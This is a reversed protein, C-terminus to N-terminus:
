YVQSFTFSIAGIKGLGLLSNEHYWFSKGELTFNTSWEYSLISQSLRLRERWTTKMGILIYEVRSLSVILLKWDLFFNTKLKCSVLLFSWVLILTRNQSFVLIFQVPVSEETDHLCICFFLHLHFSSTESFFDPWSIDHSYDRVPM